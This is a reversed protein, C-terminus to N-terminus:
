VVDTIFVLELWDNTQIRVEKQDHQRGDASIFIEGVHTKTSFTVQARNM